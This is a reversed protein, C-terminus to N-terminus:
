RAGPLMATLRALSERLRDGLEGIAPALAAAFPSPGAPARRPAATFSPAPAPPPVARPPPPSYAQPPPAHAPPPPAHAPPPGGAPRGAAPAAPLPLARGRPAAEALSVAGAEVQELRSRMKALARSLRMRVTGERLGFVQALEPYELGNRFRLVVLAREGETLERLAAEVDGRRLLLEPPPPADDAHQDPESGDEGPLAWPERKSRRLHDICRNRAIALLWTRPAAESRYAGLSTFASSFADQALDDAADRERVMSRCLAVVDAAYRSVLWEGAARLDGAAIFGRLESAASLADM